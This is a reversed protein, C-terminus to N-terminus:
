AGTGAAVSKGAKEDDKKPRQQDLFRAKAAQRVADLSPRYPNHIFAVALALGEARGPDRGDEKAAGSMLRGVVEDLEDELMRVISKGGCSHGEARM